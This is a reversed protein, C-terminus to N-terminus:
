NKIIKFSKVLKSNQQVIIFYTGVAYNSFSIQELDSKLEKTQLVRGSLDTISYEVNGFNQVNDFNLSIFDYTPNPFASIIFELLPNQDISTGFYSSQHFGQTLMQGSAIYTETQIEGISWDLQYSTNNFSEGATSVLLPSATQANITCISFAVAITLILRKM